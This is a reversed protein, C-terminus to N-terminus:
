NTLIPEITWTRGDKVARFCNEGGRKIERALKMNEKTLRPDTKDTFIVCANKSLRKTIKPNKVAYETFSASLAFNKDIIKKTM